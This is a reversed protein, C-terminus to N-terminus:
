DGPKTFTDDAIRGQLRELTELNERRRRSEDDDRFHGLSEAIVTLAEENRGRAWLFRALRIWSAAWQPERDLVSRFLEEAEAFDGDRAEIRGKLGDLDVVLAFPEDGAEEARAVCARAEEVDNLDMLRNGAMVQVNPDRAGVVAAKTMQAAVEEDSWEGSRGMATAVWYQIEGNQPYRSGADLSFALLEEDRGERVLKRGRLIAGELRGRRLGERVDRIV